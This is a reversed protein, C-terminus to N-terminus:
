DTVISVFSFLFRLEWNGPKGVRQVIYAIAQRTAWMKLNVIFTAKVNKGKYNYCRDCLKIEILGCVNKRSKSM